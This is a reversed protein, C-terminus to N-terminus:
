EIMSYPQARKTWESGPYDAVLKEYAKKLAKPDQTKKYTAVGMMYLGEAAADTSGYEDLLAKFQTEAEGFRDHDFHTKGMALMLSAVFEDPALFGLTRHHENSDADLTVITPTWKINYDKALPENDFLVQLPVFNEEVAKIVKEDPYTVAGM